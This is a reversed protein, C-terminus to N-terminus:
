PELPTIAWMIIYILAGPGPILLLLLFFLRVLTPDLNLYQAVGGCVGGIM